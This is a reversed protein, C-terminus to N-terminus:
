QTVLDKGRAIYVHKTKDSYNLKKLIAWQLTSLKAKDGQTSRKGSAAHFFHSGCLCFHMAVNAFIHSQQRSKKGAVYAFIDVSSPLVFNDVNFSANEFFIFFKPTFCFLDVICPLLENVRKIQIIFKNV